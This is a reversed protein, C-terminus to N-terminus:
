ETENLIVITNGKDAKTILINTDNKFDTFVKM